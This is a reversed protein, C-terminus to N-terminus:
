GRTPPEFLGDADNIDRHFRKHVWIREGALHITAWVGNAPGIRTAAPLRHLVETPTGGFGAGLVVVSRDTVAIVRRKILPQGLLGLSNAIWPTTGSQAPFVQQIREGPELLPTVQARLKDRIAV